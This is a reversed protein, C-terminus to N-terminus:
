IRCFQNSAEDFILHPDNAVNNPDTHILRLPNTFGVTILDEISLIKLSALYNMCQPLICSSGVLHNTKPNYLRGTETIIAENGYLTYRDHPLGSLPSADSVIISREVGKARIMVKLLPGPLHHGDAILMATLADNALGAWIPNCHRNVTISVGNGLHTLATAGAHAARDIDDDLALHHGLSVTIGRAVAHHIFTEAGESDAAITILRITGDALDIWRDLLAADPPRVWEPHHAGAANPNNSIFPGEIHIGLLRGRFEPRRIVRAFLPLNREYLADPSTIITPLFATTGADLIGQCAAACQEETLDLASFDIGKHGNVQLDVLGPIKM